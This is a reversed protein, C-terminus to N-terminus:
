QFVQILTRVGTTARTGFGPPSNELPIKRLEDESPMKEKPDLLWKINIESAWEKIRRVPVAYHFTDTGQLGLTLVGLLRGDSEFTVM